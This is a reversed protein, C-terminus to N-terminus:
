FARFTFGVKEEWSIVDQIVKKVNYRSIHQMIKDLEEEPFLPGNTMQIMASAPIINYEIMTPIGDQTVTMDWGILDFYPLQKHLAIVTEKIKDFFPIQQTASNHLAKPTNYKYGYVIREVIGSHVDISCCGGGSRANDKVAGKGGFRQMTRLVRYNGDFDCYTIIRITNLSTPNFSALDEHQKIVEQFVFNKNYDKILEDMKEENVEDKQILLVGNGNATEITPKLILNGNYETVLERAREKCILNDDGDYFKGNINYLVPKPLAVDIISRGLIKTFMNKDVYANLYSNKNLYPLIFYYYLMTPVYYRSHKGNVSAFYEEEKTSINFGYKKYYSNYVKEYKHWEFQNAMVYTFFFDDAGASLKEEWSSRRNLWKLALRDLVSM